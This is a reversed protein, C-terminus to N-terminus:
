RLGLVVPVRRWFGTRGGERGQGQGYGQGRYLVVWGGLLSAVGTFVILPGYSSGLGFRGSGAAGWGAGGGSGSGMRSVLLGGLSLLKVGAFGGGAYGVGRVGNLLGYVMGSDIAENHEAAEHELHSLMGGWTGSYGGSFFGFTLSYLVLLATSEQSGSGYGITTDQSQSFTLGWFLFTVVACVVPPISATTQSRLRIRPNDSLWAFFSSAIIGPANFVALLMTGSTQPLHAIDRAYTSLYTQPIGYGSSQFIIATAYLYITPHHLFSWPISRREIERGQGRERTSARALALRSPHTPILFISVLSTAGVIGTWIQMTTKFGHNNLLHRILFPCSTGVINKTSLVIGYAVARNAYRWIGGGARGGSSTSGTGTGTGSDSFWEGLSLTTPSYVLACGLASTVGQTVLLHWIASSYSSLLFSTCAIATGLIAAMTRHHAWRRTFLAFLLPMSLYMVGNSTTGIVGTISPDGTFQPPQTPSTTTTTYYEQFIGYSM